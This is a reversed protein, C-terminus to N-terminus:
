GRALFRWGNRRQVRWGCGDCYFCRRREVDRTLAHGRECRLMTTAAEAAAAAAGGEVGAEEGGEAHAATAAVPAGGEDDADVDDDADDDAAAGDTRLAEEDSARALQHFSEARLGQRTLLPPRPPPVADDDTGGDGRSAAAVGSRLGEETLQRRLDPREGDDDDEEEQEDDEEVCTGEADPTDGFHARVLEMFRARMSASTEADRRRDEICRTQCEALEVLLEARERETLTTLLQVENATLGSAAESVSCASGM